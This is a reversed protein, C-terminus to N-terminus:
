KTRWKSILSDLAARQQAITTERAGRLEVQLQDAFQKAQRGERIEDSTALMAQAMVAQQAMAAQLEGEKQDIIQRASQQTAALEEHLRRQDQARAQNMRQQEQRLAELMRQQDEERRRQLNRELDTFYNGGLPSYLKLM